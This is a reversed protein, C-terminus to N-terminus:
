TRPGFTMRRALLDRAPPVCGLAALGLGRATRLPQLDNSFGRVLAHTFWIGGGRDSRRRARYAALMAASGLDRSETSAVLQALEWADRLGLNLGQGAVPHLMQAANGIRQVRPSGTGGFVRLVLPFAGREAIDGFRGLRGGFERELAGAFDTEPFDCLEHAREPLVSWVLACRGDYPLLALPGTATFREFATNRHPKTTAATAVVATQGYDVTRPPREDQVAGGDAVVVLQARLSASGDGCSYEVSASDHGPTIRTVLGRILCGQMDTLAEEFAAHVRAYDVVYGLAPLRLDHAALTARGFGARQSVHIREIPTARKLRSWAGVRELILRSGHALAVPRLPMASHGSARSEVVVCRRGNAGLALALTAGVAGGGIVVVDTADVM